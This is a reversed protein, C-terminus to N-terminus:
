LARQFRGRLRSGAFAAAVFPLSLVTSLVVTLPWLNGIEGSRLMMTMVQAPAVVLTAAWDRRRSGLGILLSALLAAPMGITWFEASDWAERRRSLAHIGLELAVGILASLAITVNRSMM